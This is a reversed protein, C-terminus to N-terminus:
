IRQAAAQVLRRKLPNSPLRAMGSSHPPKPEFAAAAGGGRGGGGGGGVGAGAAAQQPAHATGVVDVNYSADSQQKVLQRGQAAAGSQAQLPPRPLPPPPPPLPRHSARPGAAGGTAAGAPPAAKVPPLLGFIDHEELKALPRPLPRPKTQQSPAPWAAKRREGGGDGGGPKSGPLRDGEGRGARGRGGRGEGWM